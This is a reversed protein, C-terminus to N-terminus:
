YIKTKLTREEEPQYDKRISQLIDRSFYVGKANVANFMEEFKEASSSKDIIGNLGSLFARKELDPNEISKMGVFKASTYRISRSM